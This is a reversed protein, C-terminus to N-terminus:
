IKYSKSAPFIWALIFYAKLYSKLMEHTSNKLIFWCLKKGNKNKNLKEGFFFNALTLSFKWGNENTRWMKMWLYQEDMFVHCLIKGHWRINQGMHWLINELYKTSTLLINWFIREHENVWAWRNVVWTWVSVFYCEHTQKEFTEWNCM